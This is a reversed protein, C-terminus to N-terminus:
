IPLLFSATVTIYESAADLVREEAQEVKSVEAQHRFYDDDFDAGNRSRLLALDESEEAFPRHTSPLHAPPLSPWGDDGGELEPLPPLIRVEEEGEAGLEKVRDSYRLSNLSHEVSNMGPSIMTIQLSPFPPM